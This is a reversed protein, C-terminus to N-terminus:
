DGLAERALRSVTGGDTQGAYRAMIEKMVQGLARPGSLDQETILADIASCLTAEDVQAPLYEELIAAEAREQQALEHREGAQYQEAAETRRKLGRRVLTAFDQDSLEGGNAITQNKVDTLLLRLTSSRIRDREKMARHLDAQLSEQTTPM